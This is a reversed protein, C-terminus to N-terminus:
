RPRSSPLTATLVINLTPCQASRRLTIPGSATPLSAVGPCTSAITRSSCSDISAPPVPKEVVSANVWESPSPLGTADRQADFSSTTASQPATRSWSPVVSSYTVSPHMRPKRSSSTSSMASMVSAARRGRLQFTSVTSALSGSRYRDCSAAHSFAARRPPLAMARVIGIRTSIFM